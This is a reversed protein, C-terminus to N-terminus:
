RETLWWKSWISHGIFGDACEGALECLRERLAAVWIPIQRVEPGFNPHLGAFSLQYHEGRYDPISEANESASDFVLRLIEIVERIRSIPPLFEQGFFDETWTQPATGLGLTFRGNSIRDLEIAACATEFPSRVFAMAIGTELELSTTSAAAVALSAWPPGYVQNGIIGEYGRDELQKAREGIAVSDGVGIPAWCKM